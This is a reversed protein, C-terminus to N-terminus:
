SGLLMHRPVSTGTGQAKQSPVNSDTTSMLSCEAPTPRLVRCRVDSPGIRCTWMSFPSCGAYFSPSDTNAFSRRGTFNVDGVRELGRPDSTECPRLTLLGVPLWQSVWGVEPGSPPPRFLPRSPRLVGGFIRRTGQRRENRAEVIITM